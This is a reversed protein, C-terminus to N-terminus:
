KRKKEEKTLFEEVLKLVVDTMDKDVDVCYRKLKKHLNEPINM